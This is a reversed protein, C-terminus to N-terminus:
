GSSSAATGSAPTLSTNAPREARDMRGIVTEPRSRVLALPRTEVAMIIPLSNTPAGSPPRSTARM